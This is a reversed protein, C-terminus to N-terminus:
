KNVVRDAISSDTRYGPSFMRYHQQLKRTEALSKQYKEAMQRPLLVQMRAFENPNAAYYEASGPAPSKKRAAAAAPSNPPLPRQANFGMQEQYRQSARLGRNTSNFPHRLYDGWTVRNSPLHNLMGRNSGYTRDLWDGASGRPSSAVTGIAAGGIGGGLLMKSKPGLSAGRRFLWSAASGLGATKNASPRTAMHSQLRALDAQPNLRTKSQIM